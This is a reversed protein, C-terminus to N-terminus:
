FAGSVGMFEKPDGQSGKIREQSEMSVWILSLPRYSRRSGESVGKTMRSVSRLDRPVARFGM